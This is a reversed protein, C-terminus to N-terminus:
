RVPVQAGARIRDGLWLVYMLLSAGLGLYFCVPWVTLVGSRDIVRGMVFPGLAWGTGSVLDTVANFRGRHSIPTHNNVYVSANTTVLIEGVTWIVTSLILLPMNRILGVMGFGVAYTLGGLAVNQTADIHQTLRTILTTLAVVTVANVSMLLGFRGPGDLGFVQRLQIPLSFAHQVYVFAYVMLVLSFVLVAPRRLLAAVLGGSEAREHVPLNEEVEEETGSGECARGPLTEAVFLAVLSISLLTTLADGLFLWPLHRRYLIGALTPGVAFGINHGLYLLAFAGRRTQRNTLDAVMAHLAPDVAGGLLGVSILLYPVIRSAGLFACPILALASLARAWVFVKKRGFHDVLKGGVLAGPAWSLASLTVWVGAEAKSFGLRDTLFLTLFPWVFNGLSNVINAFFLLYVSRPLGRYPEPIHLISM